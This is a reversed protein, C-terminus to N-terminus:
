KVVEKRQFHGQEDLKKAEELLYDNYLEQLKIKTEEITPAIQPWYDGTTNIDLESIKKYLPHTSLSREDRGKKSEWLSVYLDKHVNIKITNTIWAYTSQFHVDWVLETRGARIDEKVKQYHRM